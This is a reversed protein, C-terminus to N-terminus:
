PRPVELSSLVGCAVAAYPAGLDFLSFCGGELVSPPAGAVFGCLWSHSHWEFALLEAHILSATM